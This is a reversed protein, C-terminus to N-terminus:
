ELNKIREPQGNITNDMMGFYHDFSRNEQMILVIHEPKKYKNLAANSANDADAKNLNFGNLFLGSLLSLGTIKVFDRRDM